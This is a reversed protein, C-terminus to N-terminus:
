DNFSKGCAVGRIFIYQANGKVGLFPKLDVDAKLANGTKVLVGNIYYRPIRNGDVVIRLHYLTSAVALVGSDMANDTGNNSDICQWNGSNVGNEYRFFTQDTDTITTFTNTKKFGAIVANTTIADDLEIVADFSIEDNTNWKAAAWATQTTNTHPTIIGERASAASSALKIGGGDAFTVDSSAAGTTAELEWNRNASARVDLNDFLAQLEVQDFSAGVTSTPDFVANLFPKQEFKEVLHYRNSWFDTFMGYSQNGINIYHAGTAVHLFLHGAPYKTAGYAPRKAELGAHALLRNIANSNM